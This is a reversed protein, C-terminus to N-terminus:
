RWMTSMEEYVYDIIKIVNDPLKSLDRGDAVRLQKLEQRWNDKKLHTFHIYRNPLVVADDFVRKDGNYLKEKGFNGRWEIDPSNRFIRGIIARQSAKHGMNGEWPAWCHFAYADANGLVPVEYHFEDSDVIFGWEEPFGMQSNRMDVLDTLPEKVEFM